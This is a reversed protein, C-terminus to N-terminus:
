QCIETAHAITLSLRPLAFIIIEAKNEAGNMRVNKIAYNPAIAM